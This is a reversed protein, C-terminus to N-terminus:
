PARPPTPGPVKATITGSAAGDPVGPAAFTFNALGSTLVRFEGNLAGPMAGSILVPADTSFSDGSNVAATAVGDAVTISTVTVLGFGSVLCTQLLTKLAGATGSLVPAGRQGSHYYKVPLTM